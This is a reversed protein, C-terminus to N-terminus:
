VPSSLLFAAAHDFDRKISHVGTLAHLMAALGNLYIQIDRACAKHVTAQGGNISSSFTYVDGRYRPGTYWVRVTPTNEHAKPTQAM